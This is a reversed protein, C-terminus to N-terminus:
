RRKRVLVLQRPSQAEANPRQKGFEPSNMRPPFPPRGQRGETVTEAEAQGADPQTTTSTM